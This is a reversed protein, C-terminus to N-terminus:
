RRFSLHKHGVYSTLIPTAVGIAHAIAEVGRHIGMAPLAHRALVVSVVMTQLLGFLNVVVFWFAQVNTSNSSQEFVFKRNLAFATALGCLFALTIATMYDLWVSFLARSGFNVAAAVASAVVFRVFRSDTTGAVSPM